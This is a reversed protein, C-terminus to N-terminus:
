LRDAAPGPRTVFFSASKSEQPYEASYRGQWRRLFAVADGEAVLAWVAGGFGAGFASAAVAGLERACAPLFITNAVQNGLLEEAGRQSRDVQRGFETMDKKSLAEIAAPIIQENEGLFHEFRKVLEAGTFDDHKAQKLITRIRDAADKSSALAAALHKDNRGTAKNWVELGVSVLASARNYKDRAAGTKAAVVGSSGIAFVYGDPVAVRQKLRVPSYSYCSLEGAVGCLIATHDESGGFTGVGKSGALTGFSQGNEVTGLYSALSETSDINQRYEERDALDNVSALALFIGVMLASSSSMGAAPPLDSILAIDAGKLQGPFNSALRSAVTMPYSAWHGMTPKLEPSIAFKSKEGTGADIIRVLQDSRASSVLVFGREIACILSHGGAYDTHKGLCELRGPVFFADWHEGELASVAKAWLKAKNQAEPESMGASSLRQVIIQAKM